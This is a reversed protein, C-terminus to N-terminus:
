HGRGEESSEAAKVTAASGNRVKRKKAPRRRESPAPQAPEPESFMDHVQCVGSQRFFDVDSRALDSEPWEM